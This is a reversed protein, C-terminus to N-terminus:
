RREGHPRAIWDWLPREGGDKFRIGHAHMPQGDEVGDAKCRLSEIGAESLSIVEGHDSIANGNRDQWVAISKM